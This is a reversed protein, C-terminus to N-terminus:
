SADLCNGHGTDLCWHPQVMHHFGGPVNLTFAPESYIAESWFSFLFHDGFLANCHPCSFGMYKTKTTRSYRMGIQAPRVPVGAAATAVARVVERKAEPKEASWLVLSRTAQTVRIGCAGEITAPLVKWLLYKQKCKWCPDSHHAVVPIEVPLGNSVHSRFQVAGQLLKAAAQQLPLTHGSVVTRLGAESEVIPFAPLDRTAATISTEHRVFWACRIKAKTYRDQRRRYEDQPQRSVQVEFAVQRVGSSAFVDAVWGDGRREPEADWGALACGKLIETKVALHLPSEGRHESCGGGGANHAFYRSGLTSTRLHGSLGCPQMELRRRKGRVDGQLQVWEEDELLASVTRVGDVLALLPM